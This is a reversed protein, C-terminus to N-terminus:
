TLIAKYEGARVDIFCGYLSLMCSDASERRM